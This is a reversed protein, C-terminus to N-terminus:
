ELREMWGNVPDWEIWAMWTDGWYVSPHSININVWETIDIDAPPSFSFSGSNDTTTSFRTWMWGFMPDSWNLELTVPETRAPHTSNFLMTGSLTLNYAPLLGPTLDYSVDYVIREQNFPRFESYWPDYTGYWDYQQPNSLTMPHFVAYIEGTVSDRYEVAGLDVTKYFQSGAESSLNPMDGGLTSGMTSYVWPPDYVSMGANWPWRYFNVNVNTGDAVPAGCRELRGASLLAWNGSSPPIEEFHVVDPDLANPPVLYTYNGVVFTNHWSPVDRNGAWDTAYAYVDYAGPPVGCTNITYSKRYRRVKRDAPFTYIVSNVVNAPINPDDGTSVFRHEIEKLFGIWDEAEMTVNALGTVMPAWSGSIPEYTSAMSNLWPVSIWPQSNDLYVVKTPSADNSNGASDMVGVALLYIGDSYTTTPWSDTFIGSSANQYGELPVYETGDPPGVMNYPDNYYWGAFAGIASGLNGDSVGAQLTVDGRVFGDLTLSGMTFSQNVMPIVDFSNVLPKKTDLRVTLAQSSQNSPSAIDDATVTVTLVGERDDCGPGAWSVTYTNSGAPMESMSLSSSSCVGSFTAKVTSDDVDNPDAPAVRPDGIVARLTIPWDAKNIWSLDFPSGISIAPPTRDVIFDLATTQYNNSEMDEIVAILDNAGEPLLTTDVTYNFTGPGKDTFTAVQVSNVHLYVQYTGAQAVLSGVEIEVGMDGSWISNYPPDNFWIP